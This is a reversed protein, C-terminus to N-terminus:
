QEDDELYEYTTVSGLSLEFNGMEEYRHTFGIVPGSTMKLNESKELM